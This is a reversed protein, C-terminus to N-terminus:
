DRTLSSFFVWFRGMYTLDLLVLVSCGLYLFNMNSLMFKFEKLEDASREGQSICCYDIWVFKISTHLKVHDCLAVFQEGTPDPDGKTEWRHSVALINGRYLGRVAESATITMYKGFGGNVVDRHKPFHDFHGERLLDAKLMYFRCANGSAAQEAFDDLSTASEAEDILSRKTM